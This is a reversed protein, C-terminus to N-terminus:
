PINPEHEPPYITIHFVFVRAGTRLIASGLTVQRDRQKGLVPLSM